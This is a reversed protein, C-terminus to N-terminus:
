TELSDSVAKMRPRAEPDVEVCAMVVHFAAVVEKRVRVEGLLGPDVVESLPGEKNLCRLFSLGAIESPLYGSLNKSSLSLSVVRLSISLNSCSINSWHCPDGSSSDWNSLPDSVAFKFALLSLGDFTLAAAIATFSVIFIFHHNKMIM